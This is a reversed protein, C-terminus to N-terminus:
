SKRGCPNANLIAMIISRVFDTNNLLGQMMPSDMMQRMAEPNMQPMGPMGSMSPMGNDMSPPAPFPAPPTPRTPTSSANSSVGPVSSTVPTSTNTGSTTPSKVATEPSKSASSPSPSSSSSSSGKWKVVHLTHGTALKYSSCIDDDKLIGGSYVLKLLSASTGDMKEGVKEKLQFVTCDPDFQVNFLVGNSPRVKITITEGM